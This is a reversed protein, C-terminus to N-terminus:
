LILDTIAEIDASRPEGTLLAMEGFCEGPGLCAIERSRGGPPLFVRVIGDIIIYLSDGPEGQKFIIEGSKVEVKEFNPILRALNIRDLGSLVPIDGFNIDKL